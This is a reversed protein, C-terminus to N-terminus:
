LKNEVIWWDKDSKWNSEEDGESRVTLVFENNHNNLKYLIKQGDESLKGYKDRSFNWACDLEESYLNIGNKTINYETSISKYSPEERDDIISNYEMINDKV